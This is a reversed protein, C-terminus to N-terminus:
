KIKQIEDKIIFNLKEFNFGNILFFDYKFKMM